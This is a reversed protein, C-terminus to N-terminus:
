CAKSGDISEDDSDENDTFVAEFARGNVQIEGDFNDEEQIATKDVM